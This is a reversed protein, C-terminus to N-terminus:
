DKEPGMVADFNYDDCFLMFRDRLEALSLQSPINVSLAISIMTVQTYPALYANVIIENVSINQDTFFSVVQHVAGPTAQTIVYVSYPYLESQEGFNRQDTHRLTLKLDYKKELGSIAAEVKAIANWAGGLLAHICLENGLFDCRSEIVVCECHAILKYFESIVNLNSEALLNLALYKM